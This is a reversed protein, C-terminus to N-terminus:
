SWQELNKQSAYINYQKKFFVLPANQKMETIKIQLLNIKEPLLLLSWTQCLDKPITLNILQKKLKLQM